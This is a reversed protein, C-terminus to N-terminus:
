YYLSLGVPLLYSPIQFAPLGLADFYDANAAYLDTWQNSNNFVARAVSLLTRTTENTVFVRAGRGQNQSVSVASVQLQSTSANPSTAGVGVKIFSVEYSIDRTWDDQAHSFSMSQGVVYQLRSLIGPLHLIKGREPTDAEYVAQLANMNEVSSHGPFLGTLTIDKQGKHIVDVDLDAEGIYRHIGLDTQVSLEFGEVGLPWVYAVNVGPIALYPRQFDSDPTVVYAATEDGNLRGNSAGPALPPKETNTQYPISSM